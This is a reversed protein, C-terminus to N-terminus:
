RLEPDFDALSSMEEMRNIPRISIFDPFMHNLDGEHGERRAERSAKKNLKRRSMSRVRNSKLHRNEFEEIADLEDANSRTCGPIMM